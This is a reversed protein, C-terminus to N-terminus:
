DRQLTHVCRLLSGVTTAAEFRHAVTQVMARFLQMKTQRSNGQTVALSHTVGLSFRRKSKRLVCTTRHTATIRTSTCKSAAAGRRTLTGNPLKGCWNLFFFGIMHNLFCMVLITIMVRYTCPMQHLVSPIAKLAANWWGGSRTQLKNFFNKEVM